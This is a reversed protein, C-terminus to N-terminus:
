RENAGSAYGDSLGEKSMGRQMIIICEDGEGSMRRQMIHRCDKRENAGSAYGNSLGEGSM